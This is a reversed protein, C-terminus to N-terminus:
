NHNLQMSVKFNAPTANEASLAIGSIGLAALDEVNQKGLINLPTIIIQIGDDRFLLPMWFTLTKGAGTAAISVIDRDHRLIAEVVRIQWLCPRRGFLKFTKERIELLSPIRTDSQTKMIKQSTHSALHLHPLYHLPFEISADCVTADTACHKCINEELRRPSPSPSLQTNTGHNPSRDDFYEIKRL